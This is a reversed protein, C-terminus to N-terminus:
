GGGPTAPVRRAFGERELFAFLDPDVGIQDGVNYLGFRRLVDVM